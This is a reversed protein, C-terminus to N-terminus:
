PLLHVYDASIGLVESIPRDEFWDVKITRPRGFVAKECAEYHPLVKMMRDFEEPTCESMDILYEKKTM